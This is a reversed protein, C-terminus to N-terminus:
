YLKFKLSICWTTKNLKVNNWNTFIWAIRDCVCVCAQIWSYLVLSWIFVQFVLHKERLNVNSPPFKLGIAGDCLSIRNINKKNRKIKWDFYIENKNMKQKKNKNKQRMKNWRCVFHSLFIRQHFQFFNWLITKNTWRSLSIDLFISFCVYISFIYVFTRETQEDQM